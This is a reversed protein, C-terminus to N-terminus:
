GGLSGVVAHQDLLHECGAHVKRPDVARVVILNHPAAHDVVDAGGCHVGIGLAADDHVQCTRLEPGAFELRSWADNVNTGLTVRHSADDCRTADPQDRFVHDLSAGLGGDERHWLLADVEGLDVVLNAQAVRPALLTAQSDDFFVVLSDHELRVLACVDGRVRLKLQEALPEPLLELVANAFQRSDFM